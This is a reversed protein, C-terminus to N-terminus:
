VVSKRDTPRHRRFQRALPLCPPLLRNPQRRQRPLFSHLHPPCCAVVSFSAQLAPFSSWSIEEQPRIATRWNSYGSVVVASHSKGKRPGRRYTKTAPTSTFAVKCLM